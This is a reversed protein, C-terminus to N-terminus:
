KQHLFPLTKTDFLVTGMSVYSLSEKIEEMCTTKYSMEYIVEPREKLLDEKYKELENNLKDILVIRKEEM